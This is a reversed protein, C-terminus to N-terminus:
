HRNNDGASIVRTAPKASTRGRVTELGRRRVAYFGWVNFAAVLAAVAVRVSTGDPSLGDIMGSIWGLAMALVTLGGTVTVRDVVLFRDNGSFVTGWAFGLVPAAVCVALSVGLPIASVLRDSWHFALWSIACGSATGGIVFLPELRSRPRMLTAGGELLRQRWIERCDDTFGIRLRLATHSVTLLVCPHRFPPLVTYAYGDCVYTNLVSYAFADRPTSVFLNPGELSIRRPLLTSSNYVYTEAAIVSGLLMGGFICFVVPQDYGCFWLLCVGIALLPVIAGLVIWRVATLRSRVAREEQECRGDSIGCAIERSGFDVPAHSVKAPCLRGGSCM